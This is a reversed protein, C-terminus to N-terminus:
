DLDDDHDVQHGVIAICEQAYRAPHQQHTHWVLDVLPTPELPESRLRMQELFGRYNEVAAEICRETELLERQSLMTRMFGQQRRMAAVLDVAMPWPATGLGHSPLAGRFCCKSTAYQTCDLTANSHDILTAGDCLVTCDSAYDQTHLLHTRWVVEVVFSAPGPTPSEHALGAMFSGYERM